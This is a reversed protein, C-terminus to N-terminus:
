KELRCEATICCPSDSARNEDPDRHCSEDQEFKVFLLSSGFTVGNLRRPSVPNACIVHVLCASSNGDLVLFYNRGDELPHECYEGRNLKNMVDWYKSSQEHTM